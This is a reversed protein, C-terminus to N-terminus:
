ETRINQSLVYRLYCDECLHYRSQGKFDLGSEMGCYLRSKVASENLVAGCGKDSENIRRVLSM